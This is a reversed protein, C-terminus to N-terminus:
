EPQTKLSPNPPHARDIQTSAFIGDELEWKEGGNGTGWRGKKVEKDNTDPVEGRTAFVVEETMDLGKRRKELRRGRRRRNEKCCLFHAFCDAMHVCVYAPMPSPLLAPGGKGLFLDGGARGRELKKKRKGELMGEGEDEGSVGAKAAVATAALLPTTLTSFPCGLSDALGQVACRGGEEGREVDEEGIRGIGDWRM